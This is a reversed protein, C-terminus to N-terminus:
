GRRGSPRPHSAPARADRGDSSHIEKKREEIEHYFLSKRRTDLPTSLSQSHLFYAYKVFFFVARRNHTDLKRSAARLDDTPASARPGTTQHRSPKDVNSRRLTRGIKSHVGVTTTMCPQAALVPLGVIPAKSCLTNIRKMQGCWRHSLTM